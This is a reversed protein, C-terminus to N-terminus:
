GAAQPSAANLSDPATLRTTSRRTLPAGPFGERTGRQRLSLPPKGSVFSGPVSSGPVSSGITDRKAFNICASGSVFGRRRPFTKLNYIAGPVSVSPYLGCPIGSIPYKSRLAQITIFEM